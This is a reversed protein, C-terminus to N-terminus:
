KVKCRPRLAITVQPCAGGKVLGARSFLVRNSQESHSIFFTTNMEGKEEEATKEEEGGGRRERGGGREEKKEKKQEEGGGGGTKRSWMIDLVSLECQKVARYSIFFFVGSDYTLVENGTVVVTSDYGHLIMCLWQEVMMVM